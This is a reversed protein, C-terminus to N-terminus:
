YNLGMFLIELPKPCASILRGGMLRSSGTLSRRERGREKERGEGEGREVVKFYIEKLLKAGYVPDGTAEPVRKDFTWGDPTFEWDLIALDVIAQLGKLERV